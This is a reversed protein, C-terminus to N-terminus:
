DDGGDADGDAAAPAEGEEGAAAAEEEARMAELTSRTVVGNAVAEDADVETRVGEPLAVDSVKISENVELESIDVELETPIDSPRSLVSLTFMVQDVMGSMQTVNRAEGTLVVPVDVAVEANADLRIFDVHLVNRRVPHRQIDKVITLQTDGDIELDILANVGAETTLVRRLDPWDVSISVPDQGLGYVVGPVRGERRLRRSSRTGIERGTDAQLLLESM